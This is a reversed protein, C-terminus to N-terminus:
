LPPEFKATNTRDLLCDDLLSTTFINGSKEVCNASNVPDAKNCPCKPLHNITVCPIYNPCPNVTLCPDACINNTCSENSLCEDDATCKSAPVMTVPIIAPGSTSYEIPAQEKATKSQLSTGTTSDITTSADHESSITTESTDDADGVSTVSTVEVKSDYPTTKDDTVVSMRTSFTDEVKTRSTSYDVTTTTENERTDEVNPLDTNVSSGDDRHKPTTGDTTKLTSSMTNETSMSYISTMEEGDDYDESESGYANTTLPISRDSESIEETTSLPNVTSDAEFTVPKETEKRTKIPKVTAEQVGWYEDYRQTSSRNLLVDPLTSHGKPLPHPVDIELETTKRDQKVLTDVHSPVKGTTIRAITTPLTVLEELITTFGTIPATPPLETKTTSETGMSRTVESSSSSSISVSSSETTQIGRETQNSETISFQTSDSPTFLETSTKINETTESDVATLTSKLLEQQQSTTTQETDASTSSSLVDGNESELTTSEEGLPQTSLTSSPITTTSTLQTSDKQVSFRGGPITATPDQEPLRSTVSQENTITTTELTIQDNTTPLRATTSDFKDDTRMMKVHSDTVAKISTEYSKSTSTTITEIEASSEPIILESTLPHQQSTTPETLSTILNAGTSVSTSTETAPLRTTHDGNKEPAVDTETNSENTEDSATVVLETHAIPDITSFNDSRDVDVGDYYEPEGTTTITVTNKLTTDDTGVPSPTSTDTLTLPLCKRNPNGTPCTCIPVHAKVTCLAFQGCGSRCPDLCRGVLCQM